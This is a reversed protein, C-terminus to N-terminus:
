IFIIAAARFVTPLLIIQMSMMIPALDMDYPLLVRINHITALMDDDGNLIISGNEYMFDFIESKAKLIGQRSGLQELHCLGINTLLCYNPKAIKSLRHMEGFQSIGM